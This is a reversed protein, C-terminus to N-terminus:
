QQAIEGAGPSNIKPLPPPLVFQFFSLGMLEHHQSFPIFCMYVFCLVCVCIFSGFWVLVFVVCGLSYRHRVGNVFILEFHM